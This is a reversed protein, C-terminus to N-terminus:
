KSKKERPYLMVTVNRFGTEQLLGVLRQAKEELQRTNKDILVSVGLVNENAPQKGWAQWVEWSSLRNGLALIKFPGLIEVHSKRILSATSPTPKPQTGGSEEEGASESSSTKPVLYAPM